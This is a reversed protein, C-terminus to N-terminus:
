LDGLGSIHKRCKSCRCVSNRERKPHNSKINVKWSSSWSPPKDQRFSCGTTFMRFYLTTFLPVNNSLSRLHMFFKFDYNHMVSYSYQLYEIAGLTEPANPIIVPSATQKAPEPPTPTITISPTKTAIVTPTVVDPVPATPSSVETNTICATLFIILALSLRAFHFRMLIIGKKNISSYTIM